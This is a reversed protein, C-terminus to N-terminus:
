RLGFFAKMEEVLGETEFIGLLTAISSITAECKSAKLIDSCMKIGGCAFVVANADASLKRIYQPPYADQVDIVAAGDVCSILSVVIGWRLSYRIMKIRKLESRM